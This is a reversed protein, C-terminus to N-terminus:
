TTTARGYIQVAKIISKTPSALILCYIDPMDVGTVLIDVNLLLKIENNRFKKITEETQKKSYM